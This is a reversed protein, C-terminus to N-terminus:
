KQTIKRYAEFYRNGMIYLSERCFHVYDGLDNLGIKQHNTPLDDTEVFIGDRDAAAKRIAQMIATAGELNDQVWEDCFGGCIFPLDPCHYRQRVSDIM